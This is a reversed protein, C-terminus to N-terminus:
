ERVSWKWLADSYFTHPLRTLGASVDTFLHLRKFLLLKGQYARMHTAQMNKMIFLSKDRFVMQAKFKLGKKLALYYPASGRFSSFLQILHNATDLAWIRSCCSWFDKLFFFRLAPSLSPFLPYVSIHHQDVNQTPHIALWGPYHSLSRSRLCWNNANLGLLSLLLVDGKTWRQANLTPVFRLRSSNRYKSCRTANVTIRHRERSILSMSIVHRQM